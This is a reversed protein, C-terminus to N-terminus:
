RKLTNNSTKFEMMIIPLERTIRRKKLILFNRKMKMATTEKKGINFQNKIIIMMIKM